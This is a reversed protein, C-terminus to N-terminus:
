RFSAFYPYELQVYTLPRGNVFALHTESELEKDMIDLRFDADISDPSWPM